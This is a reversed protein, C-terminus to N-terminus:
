GGRMEKPLNKDIKMQEIGDMLDGETNSLVGYKAPNNIKDQFPEDWRQNIGDEYSIM